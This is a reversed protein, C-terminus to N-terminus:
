KQYNGYLLIKIYNIKPGSKDRTRKELSGFAKFIQAISLRLALPSRLQCIRPSCCARRIRRFLCLLISLENRTHTHTQTIKKTKSKKNVNATKLKGSEVRESLASKGKASANANLKNIASCKEKKQNRILLFLNYRHETVQSIHSKKINRKTIPRLQNSQKFIYYM